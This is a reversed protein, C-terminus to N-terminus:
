VGAEIFALWKLRRSFKRLGEHRRQEIIHIGQRGRLASSPTQPVPVALLTAPGLIPGPAASESRFCAKAECSGRNKIRRVLVVPLRWVCLWSRQRLGGWPEGPDVAPRDSEGM